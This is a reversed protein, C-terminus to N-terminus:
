ELKDLRDVTNMNPYKGEERVFKYTQYEADRQAAIAKEEKVDREYHKSFM